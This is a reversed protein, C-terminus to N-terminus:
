VKNENFHEITEIVKEYDVKTNYCGDNLLPVGYTVIKKGNLSCMGKNIEYNCAIGLIGEAPKHKLINVIASSGTTIYLDYGYKKADKKL